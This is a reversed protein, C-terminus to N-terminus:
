WGAEQMWLHAGVPGLKFLDYKEWKRADFAMRVLLQALDSAKSSPFNEALLERAAMLSTDAIRMHLTNV